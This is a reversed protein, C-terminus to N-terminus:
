EELGAGDEKQRRNDFNAPGKTFGRTYRGPKQLQPAMDILCRAEVDRTGSLLSGPYSEHGGNAVPCGTPVM